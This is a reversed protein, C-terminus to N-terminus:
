APSQKFERRVGGCELESAYREMLTRRTLWAHQPLLDNPRHGRASQQNFARRLLWTWLRVARMRLCEQWTAPPPNVLGSFGIRELLRSTRRTNLFFSENGFAGLSNLAPNSNIYHALLRLSKRAARITACAWALDTGSPPIPPMHENWIHLLGVPEGKRLHTGDLLLADERVVGLSLRFICDRDDCYERVGMLSRLVRDVAKTARNLVDGAPYKM